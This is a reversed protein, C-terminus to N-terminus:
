PLYEWLYYDQKGLYKKLKGVKRFGAKKLFKKSEKNSVLSVCQINHINNKKAFDIIKKLMAIGVGQRRYKSDVVLLDVRLLGENYLDSICAGIIKGNESNASLFPWYKILKIQTRKNDHWELDFEESESDRIFKILKERAKQSKELKVEFAIREKIKFEM